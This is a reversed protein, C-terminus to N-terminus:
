MQTKFAVCGMTYWSYEPAEKNMINPRYETFRLHKYYPIKKLLEYDMAENNITTMEGKDVYVTYALMKTWRYLLNINQYWNPLTPMKNILEALLSYEANSELYLFLFLFLFYYCISYAKQEMIGSIRSKQVDVAHLLEKLLEKRSLNPAAQQKYLAFMRELVYYSMSVYQVIYNQLDRDNNQALAIMQEWGKQIAIFYFLADTKDSISRESEHSFASEIGCIMTNAWFSNKESIDSELKESLMQLLRKDSIKETLLSIIMVSLVSFISIAWTIVLGIKSSVIYFCAAFSIMVFSFVRLTKVITITRYRVDRNLFGHTRKVQSKLILEYASLVVTNLLTGFSFLSSFNSINLSNIKSIASNILPKTSLLFSDIFSIFVSPFCIIDILYLFIFAILTKKWVVLAM